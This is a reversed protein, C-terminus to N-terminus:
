RSHCAVTCPTVGFTNAVPPHVLLFSLFLGVVVLVAIMAQRM